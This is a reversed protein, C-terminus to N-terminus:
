GSAHASSTPYNKVLSELERPTCSTARARGLQQPASPQHVELPRDGGSATRTLFAKDPYIERINIEPNFNTAFAKHHNGANCDSSTSTTTYDRRLLHKSLTPRTPRRCVPHLRLGPHGDTRRRSATKTFGV